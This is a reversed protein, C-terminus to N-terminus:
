RSNAARGDRDAIRDRSAGTRHDLCRRSRVSCERWRRRPRARSAGHPVPRALTARERRRRRPGYRLRARRNGGGSPCTPALTPGEGRECAVLPRAPRRKGRATVSSPRRTRSTQFRQLGDPGTRAPFGGNPTRETTLWAVPPAAARSQLIAAATSPAARATPLRQM